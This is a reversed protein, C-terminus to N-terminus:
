RDNGDPASGSTTWAMPPRGIRAQDAVERCLWRSMERIEPHPSPALLQCSEATELADCVMEHLTVFHAVASHPVLLTLARANGVVADPAGGLEPAPIQEHLINMAESAHAHRALATRDEGLKVLLYERLLASTHQQWAAHLRIPVDLLEITVTDEANSEPPPGPSLSEDLPAGRPDEIEFWVVKGTGLPFSSWRTVLSDVVQLGRGTASATAHGRRRPLHPCDDGVEVRLGSVTAALTLHVETGAHVLANTVLESVALQADDMVSQLDTGGLLARVMSRAEGVSAGHSPLVLTRRPM